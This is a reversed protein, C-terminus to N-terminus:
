GSLRSPSNIRAGTIPGRQRLTDRRRLLFLDDPMILDTRVSAFDATVALQGRTEVSSRDFEYRRHDFLYGTIESLVLGSRALHLRAISEPSDTQESLSRRITPTGSFSM